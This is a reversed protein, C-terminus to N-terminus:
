KPTFPTRRRHSQRSLRVLIDIECSPEEDTATCQLTGKGTMGASQLSELDLELPEDILRTAASDMGHLLADASYTSFRAMTQMRQNRLQQHLAASQYTLGAIVGAVLAMVALVIVMSLARRHSRHRM